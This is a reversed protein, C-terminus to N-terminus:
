KRKAKRATAKDITSRHIPTVETLRGSKMFRNFNVPTYDIVDSCVCLHGKRNFTSLHTHGHINFCWGEIPLPEHSLMLKPGIMLPGSYIEDFVEEYNSVGVDHNGTILIKYGRLKKAYEIDGVDGLLILTDKRGVKANIMKVQEDATPRNPFAVRIDDDDNFHTDSYIWVTGEQHWHDFIKYLGPIM